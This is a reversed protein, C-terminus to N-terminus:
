GKHIETNPMLGDIIKELKKDLTESASLKVVSEPLKAKEDLAMVGNAAIVVFSHACRTFGNNAAKKPVVLTGEYSMRWAEILKLAKNLDKDSARVLVLAGKDVPPKNNRLVDISTKFDPTVIAAKYTKLTSKAKSVTRAKEAQKKKVQKEEQKKEAEKVAKEADDSKGIEEVDSKNLESEGQLVKAAELNGKIKELADVGKAFNGDRRVSKEDVGFEKAIKESAAGETKNQAGHEPGKTMNYLIGIYYSFRQRTLNRRGLQNRLMWAKAEELSNVPAKETKFSLGHKKAIQYRNHGDLLVNENGDKWIILPDRVGEELISEELLKTEEDSLTDLLSKLEDRITIDM